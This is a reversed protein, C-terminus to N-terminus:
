SVKLFEEEFKKLSTEDLFRVVGEVINGGDYLTAGVLSPKISVQSLLDKFRNLEEKMWSLVEKGVKLSQLEKRIDDPQIELLWNSKYPNSKITSFNSFLTTNYGTIIGDIPAYINVRSNNTVLQIIPEGKKVKHGIDRILVAKLPKLSKNIFDDLGINLKGNEKLELWTHGRSYYYGQPVYISQKNFVLKTQQNSASEEFITIRKEKFKTVLLNISIILVFFLLVLLATM